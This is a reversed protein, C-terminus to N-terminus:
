YTEVAVKIKRPVLIEREEVRHSQAFDVFAAVAAECTQDFEWILDTRSRLAETEWSAFDERMDLSKGPQCFLRGDEHRGGHVLVLYGGSRGNQSIQWRFGHKREFDRLIESFGDYGEPVELMEWCVDLTERDLGLRDIKICHAYSTSNNWSSMTHYRTHGLLYAIMAKRRLPKREPKKLYM